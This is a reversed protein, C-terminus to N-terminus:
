EINLINYGGKDKLTLPVIVSVIGHEIGNHLHGTFIKKINSSEDVIEMFRKYPYQTDFSKNTFPPHHMAVIVHKNTNLADKFWNIQNDDLFGISTGNKRSTDLIIFRFDKIDAIYYDAQSLVRMSKTSDHNGRLWLIRFPRKKAIKQLEKAYKKDGLDVNDGLILCVDIDEKEFKKLATKFSSLSKRPYVVNTGERDRIKNKGAHIDSILGVKIASAHPINIFTGALFAVLFLVVIYKKM